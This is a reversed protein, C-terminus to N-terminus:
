GQGRRSRGPHALRDRRRMGGVGAGRRLGARDRAVRRHDAGEPRASGTGDHGGVDATMALWRFTARCDRALQAALSSIAEDSREECHREHAVPLALNEFAARFKCAADAWALKM